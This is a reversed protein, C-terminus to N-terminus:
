LANDLEQINMKVLDFIADDPASARAVSEGGM